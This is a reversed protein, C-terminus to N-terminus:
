RLRETMANVHRFKTYSDCLRIMLHSLDTMAPLLERVEAPLNLINCANRGGDVTEDVRGLQWSLAAQLRLALTAATEICASLGADLVHHAGLRSLQLVTRTIEGVLKVDFDLVMRNGQYAKEMHDHLLARLANPDFTPADPEIIAETTSDPPAEETARPGTKADTNVVADEDTTPDVVRLNAAIM